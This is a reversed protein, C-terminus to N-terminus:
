PGWKEYGLMVLVVVVGLVVFLGIVALTGTGASLLISGFAFWALLGGITVTTGGIAFAVTSKADEDDMLSQPNPVAPGHAPTEPHLRAVM